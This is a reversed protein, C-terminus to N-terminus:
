EDVWKDMISGMDKSSIRERNQNRKAVARKANMQETQETIRENIELAVSMDFQLLEFGTEDDYRQYLDSPLVGKFVSCLTPAVRGIM